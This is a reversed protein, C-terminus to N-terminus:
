GQRRRRQKKKGGSGTQKSPDQKSAAYAAELEDTLEDPCPGYTERIRLNQVDDEQFRRYAASTADPVTSDTANLLEAEEPTIPPDPYRDFYAQELTVHNGDPDTYVIFRGKPPNAGYQKWRYDHEHDWRHGHCWYKTGKKVFDKAEPAQHDNAIDIERARKSKRVCEQPLEYRHKGLSIRSIARSTLKRIKEFDKPYVKTEAVSDKLSARNRFTSDQMYTITVETYGALRLASRFDGQDPLIAGSASQLAAGCKVCYLFYKNPAVAGCVPNVCTVQESATQVSAFIEDTREAPPKYIDLGREIEIVRKVFRIPVHIDGRYGYFSAANQATIFGGYHRCWAAELHSEGTARFDVPVIECLMTSDLVLKFQGYARVGQAAGSNQVDRMIGCMFARPSDVSTRCGNLPDGAAMIKMVAHGNTHHVIFHHRIDEPTMRAHGPIQAPMTGQTVSGGQCAVIYTPSEDVDLSLYGFMLRGKIDLNVSCDFPDMGHHHWGWTAIDMVMPLSTPDDYSQMACLALLDTTFM